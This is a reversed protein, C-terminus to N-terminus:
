SCVPGVQTCRVQFKQIRALELPFPPSRRPCSTMMMHTWDMLTEEIDTLSGPCGSHVNEVFCDLFILGLFPHPQLERSQEFSAGCTNEVTTTVWIWLPAYVALWLKGQGKQGYFDKDVLRSRYEKKKRRKKKTAAECLLM